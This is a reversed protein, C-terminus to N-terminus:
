LMQWQHFTSTVPQTSTSLGTSSNNGQLTFQNEAKPVNVPTTSQAAPVSSPSSKNLVKRVADFFTAHDVSNETVIYFVRSGKTNRSNISFMFKKNQSVDRTETGPPLEIFGKAEEATKSAFYWLRNDKLVFWRKKWTKVSGGQKKGWGEFLAPRLSEVSIKLEESM